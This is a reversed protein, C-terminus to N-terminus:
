EYYLKSNHANKRYIQGDKLTFPTKYISLDYSNGARVLNLNDISLNMNHPFTKIVCDDHYVVWPISVRTKDMRTLEFEYALNYKVYRVQKPNINMKTYITESRGIDKDTESPSTYLGECIGRQFGNSKNFFRLKWDAGISMDIIKQMNQRTSDYMGTNETVLRSHGPDLLLTWMKHWYQKYTLIYYPSEKISQNLSLVEDVVIAPILVSGIIAKPAGEPSIGIDDYNKLDEPLQLNTPTPLSPLNINQHNDTFLSNGGNTIIKSWYDIRNDCAAISMGNHAKLKFDTPTTNTKEFHQGPDGTYPRSLVAGDYDSRILVEGNAKSAIVYKANDLLFFIFYSRDFTDFANAVQHSHPTKKCFSSGGDYGGYGGENLQNYLASNKTNGRFRLRQFRQSEDPLDPTYYGLNETYGNSEYYGQNEEYMPNNMSTYSANNIEQNQQPDDYMNQPCNCSEDHSQYMQDNPIHQNNNWEYNKQNSNM